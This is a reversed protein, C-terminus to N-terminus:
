RFCARLRLGGRLLRALKMKIPDAIIEAAGVLGDSVLLAEKQGLHHAGPDAELAQVFGFVFDEVLVAEDVEEVVVGISILQEAAADGFAFAHPAVRKLLELAGSPAAKAAVGV